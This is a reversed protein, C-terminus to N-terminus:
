KSMSMKNRRKPKQSLKERQGLTHSNNISKCGWQVLWGLKFLIVCIRQHASLIKRWRWKWTQSQISQSSIRDSQTSPALIVQKIPCWNSSPPPKSTTTLSATQVKTISDESPALLSLNAILICSYPLTKAWNELLNKKTRSIPDM